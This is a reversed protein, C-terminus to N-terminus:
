KQKLLSLAKSVAMGDWTPPTLMMFHHPEIKINYNVIM